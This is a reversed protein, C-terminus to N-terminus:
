DEVESKRNNLCREIIGTIKITKIHVTKKHNYTCNLRAYLDLAIAKM